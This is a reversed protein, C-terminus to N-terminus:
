QFCPCSCFEGFMACALGPECYIFRPSSKRAVELANFQGEREAGGQLLPMNPLLPRHLLRAVVRHQQGLELQVADLRAPAREVRGGRADACLLGGGLDPLAEVHVDGPVVGELIESTTLQNTKYTCETCAFSIAFM